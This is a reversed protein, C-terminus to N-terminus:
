PQIVRVRVPQRKASRKLWINGIVMGLVWPLGIFLNLFAFYELNFSDLIEGWVYGSCGGITALTLCEALVLGVAMAGVPFRCKVRLFMVFALILIGLIPGGYVLMVRENPFVFYGIFCAAVVCGLMGLVVAIPRLVCIILRWLMAFFLTVFQYAFSRSLVESQATKEDPMPLAGAVQKKSRLEYSV